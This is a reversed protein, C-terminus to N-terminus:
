KSLSSSGHAVGTLLAVRDEQPGFVDGLVPHRLYGPEFLRDINRGKAWGYLADWNVCSHPGSFNALPKPQTRGWRMTLPAVDARCMSGARLVDLCHDLHIRRNEIQSPNLDDPFYHSAYLFHRLHKICHLEHFVVLTGFYGGEPLEIAEEKRTQDIM